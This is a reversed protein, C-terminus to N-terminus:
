DLPQPLPPPTAALVEKATTDNTVLMNVYKGKLASVIAEAKHLGCAVAIVTPIKQLAELGISVSRQNLPHELLTGDAAFFQACMNGVAGAKKLNDIDQQTLYGRWILSTTESTDVQPTQGLAGIGVLAIHANRGVALTDEVLPEQIILDRTRMDKAVLPAYVYRYTANYKDALDRTLNAGEILPNDSGLAGLIQVVTLDLSHSPQLNRITAEVSRGYSVGLVMHKKILSSLLVAALKGTGELIDKKELKDARLVRADALSFREKLQSELLSNRTYPYHIKISVVGENRADRLLRSVTSRSSGLRRSIATQTLHEEYYLTAVEAFLDKNTSSQNAM